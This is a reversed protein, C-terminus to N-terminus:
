YIKPKRKQAIMSKEKGQNKNQLHIQFLSNLHLKKGQLM